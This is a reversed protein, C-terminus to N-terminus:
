SGSQEWRAVVVALRLLTAELSKVESQWRRHVQDVANVLDLHEDTDARFRAELAKDDSSLIKEIQGWLAFEAESRAMWAALNSPSREFPPTVPQFEMAALDATNIGLQEGLNVGLDDVLAGAHDAARNLLTGLLGLAARLNPPTGVSAAVSDLLQAAGRITETIEPLGPPEARTADANNL